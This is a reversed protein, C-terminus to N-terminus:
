DTEQSPRQRRCRRPLEGPPRHGAFGHTEGVAGPASQRLGSRILLDPLAHQNGLARAAGGSFADVRREAQGDAAARSEGNRDAVVFQRGLGNEVILGLNHDPIARERRGGERYTRARQREMGAIGRAHQRGQVLGRRQLRVRIAGADLAAGHCEIRGAVARRAPAKRCAIQCRAQRRGDSPRRCGERARTM